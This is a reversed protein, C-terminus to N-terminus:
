NMFAQEIRNTLGPDDLYHSTEICIAWGGNVFQASRLEPDVHSYTLIM